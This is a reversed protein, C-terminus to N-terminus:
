ELRELTYYLSYATGDTEGALTVSYTISTGAKAEFVTAPGGVPVPSSSVTLNQGQWFQGPPNLDYSWLLSPINQQGQDDTWTLDFNWQSGTVGSNLVTAYVSLRYLGTQLPTFITTTPIPATQNVLKCRAVIQPSAYNTPASAGAPQSGSMFAFVALFVAVVCISKYM